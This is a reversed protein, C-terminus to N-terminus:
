GFLNIEEQVKGPLTNVPDNQYQGLYKILYGVWNRRFVPYYYYDEQKPGIENSKSGADKRLDLTAINRLVM